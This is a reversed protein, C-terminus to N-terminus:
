YTKRMDSDAEELILHELMNKDLMDQKQLNILQDPLKDLIQVESIILREIEEAHIKIDNQEKEFFNEEASIRKEISLIISELQKFTAIERTIIILIKKLEILVYKAMQDESSATKLLNEALKVEEELAQIQKFHKDEMPGLIANREYKLYKSVEPGWISTRLSHEAEKEKLIEKDEHIKNSIEKVLQNEESILLSINKELSKRNDVWGQIEEAIHHIDSKCKNELNLKQEETSLETPATGEENQNPIQQNAIPHINKLKELLDSLESKLKIQLNTISNLNLHTENTVLDKSTNIETQVDEEEQIIDQKENSEAKDEAEEINKTKDVKDM